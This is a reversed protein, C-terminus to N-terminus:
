AGGKVDSSVSSATYDSHFVRTPVEALLCVAAGFIPFSRPQEPM